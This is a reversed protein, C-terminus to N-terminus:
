CLEIQISETKHEQKKIKISFVSVSLLLLVLAGSVMVTQSFDYGTKKIVGSSSYVIKGNVDKLSITGDSNITVNLNLASAAAQVYQLIKQGHEGKISDLDTIKNNQIYAKASEIQNLVSSIQNDTLVHSLLYNKATNIDSTQLSLKTKNVMVGSQLSDIIKQEDASITGIAHVPSIQSLCLFTLACVLTSVKKM